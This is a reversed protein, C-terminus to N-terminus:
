DFYLSARSHDRHHESVQYTKTNFRLYNVVGRHSTLVGKPQGTSGSTYFVYALQEPGVKTESLFEHETTLPLGAGFAGGAEPFMVKGEFPPLKELLHPQTLLLRVETDALLFAL